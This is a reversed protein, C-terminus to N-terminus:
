DEAVERYPDLNYRTPAVSYTATKQIAPATEKGQAGFMFSKLAINSELTNDDEKKKIMSIQAQIKSLREEVEADNPISSLIQLQELLQSRSGPAVAGPKKPIGSTQPIVLASERKTTDMIEKRLEDPSKTGKFELVAVEETDGGLTINRAKTLIGTELDSALKTSTAEDLEVLDKIATVVNEPLLGGILICTIINALATYNGIQINYKAGVDSAAKKVDGGKILTKIGPPAQEFLNKLEARDTVIYSNNM